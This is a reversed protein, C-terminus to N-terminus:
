RISFSWPAAALVKLDGDALTHLFFKLMVAHQEPIVAEIQNFPDTADAVAATVTTGISSKKGSLVEDLIDMLSKEKPFTVVKANPANAIERAAAVADDIGGLEDILGIEKAAVGSWVRGGGIKKVESQKMGRGEAVKRTFTDYVDELIGELIKVERANWARAEDALGTNDGIAITDKRLGIKKYMDGLIFRGGIVGISGTITTPEAYIKDAGMAIYYGGSGAVDGMSVVHPIGKDNLAELRQWILDSAIASGGGSDVRLVIGKLGPEKAVEDLLDLFDESAIVNEAAFPSKEARGDMIPGLAYVLAIKDGSDAKAQSKKATGMFLGLLNVQEPKKKEEASYETDFKLDKGFKREVDRQLEDFYAIRDVLGEELAQKATYPGDTLWRRVKREKVERAEAVSKTLSDFFDDIIDTIQIRQGESMGDHTFPEFATKFKGTNVAQAQIGLKALTDKYYFLDARMGYLELGSVPPIVIESGTSALVYGGIGASTFTTYLPKGSARFELLADRVEMMRASGLAPSGLRVIMAPVAPDDKAKRITAVLSQLTPQDQNLLNFAPKVDAYAGDLTLVPVITTAAKPSAAASGTQARPAVGPVAAILVAAALIAAANRMMTSKRM